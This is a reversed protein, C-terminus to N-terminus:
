EANKGCCNKYKKGSGCPCPDNRGAKKEVRVPQLTEQNQRNTSQEQMPSKQVNTAAAAPRSPSATAQRATGTKAKRETPVGRVSIHFLAALMTENISAVMEEFMDYGAIAYEKAPDRNGYAQLSIGDRLRDMADIHEIWHTDVVRLLVEREADRMSLGFSALEKERNEYEERARNLLEETLQERNLARRQEKTLGAWPNEGQKFFFRSLHTAMAALDWEEPDASEPCYTNVADTVLEEILSRISDSIDEGLLVRRRQGYIVERQKNMVDDFQLVNKRANYHMLEIRKQASEIQRTLLGMEMPEDAASKGAIKSALAK